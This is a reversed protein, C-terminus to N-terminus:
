PATPPLSSPAAAHCRLRQQRQALATAFNLAHKNRSGESQGSLLACDIGYQELIELFNSAVEISPFYLFTARRGQRAVWAALLYLLTTKGAGPLGILHKIGTLDIDAADELGDKGARM